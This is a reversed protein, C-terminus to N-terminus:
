VECGTFNERVDPSNHNSQEIKWSLTVYYVSHFIFDVYRTDKRVTQQATAKVSFSHSDHYVHDLFTEPRGKWRSTAEYPDTCSNDSIEARSRHSSSLLRSSLESSTLFCPIIEISWNAICLLSSFLVCFQKWLWNFTGCIMVLIFQTFSESRSTRASHVKKLIM